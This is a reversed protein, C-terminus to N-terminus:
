NLVFQVLVYVLYASIYAMIGMVAFQIAPWKWSGSERRVIALTSMCQLAYVYFVMLSLGFALDYRKIQSNPKLEAAMKERISGSNEPDSVSYITALTGVFVERAAFSTIIAIGIKWDYGLPSIVPELQKGFIGAYSSELKESNYAAMASADNLDVAAYKEEISKMQKSPGYSSLFWLIISIGIIIKGADFLFVKVKELIGLSLNKWDPRKFDPMEMIFYGKDTSKIRRSLLWSLFLASIIGLFYLSFLTLGRAHFPGWGLGEPIVLAILLTYVPLRASCSMLPTVLMTILRERKSSISRTAMIAPIACAFGGVLPIVSRGNLGFRRLFRDLIFSVRAMYGTEELLGIFLFLFAIQPIFVVIGSLGALIGNTLLDTLWHEPLSSQLVSIVGQFSWEIFEMPKEAWSFVSQFMLFMIAVFIIYGWIPHTVVNDILRTREEKNSRVKSTVGELIQDILSFREESEAAQRRFSHFDYRDRIKQLQETVDKKEQLFRIQKFNTLVQFAGYNTNTRVIERVEQLASTTKEDFSLFERKGAEVGDKLVSRIMDASQLKRANIMIVKCGLRESLLEINFEFGYDKAIDEMNLVVLTPIGLEIVQTALYLGRQLNTSDLVVINIDPYNIDGPDCLTNFTVREDESKPFLSYTGPLDIIEAWQSEGRPNVFRIKGVKKEVTVGPFNGVRQKLGTLTNFLTTKGSNPNGILAIRMM